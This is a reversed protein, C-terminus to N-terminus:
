APSAQDRPLILLLSAGSRRLAGSDLLPSLLWQSTPGRIAHGSSPTAGTLTLNFESACSYIPSLREDTRFVLLAAGQSYVDFRFSTCRVQKISKTIVTWLSRNTATIPGACTVNHPSSWPASLPPSSLVSRQAVSEKHSLFLIRCSTTCYCPM